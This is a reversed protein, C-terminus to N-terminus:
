AARSSTGIAAADTRRPDHGPDPRRRGLTTPQVRRLAQRLEDTLGSIREFDLDAPLRLREERRFAAIDACQRELYGRYRAEIELQEAVDPVCRRWSRGSRRWVRWAWARCPWCISATRACAMRAAGAVWQGRGRSADADARGPARRATALAAAKATFLSRASGASAASLWGAGPLGCTRTTPACALAPVRGPLHVDSLARHHGLTTLDDVLVGLYAESRDPVFDPTRGGAAMAANVGALLGQAAAEEYGTTGNIQGALFLGRLARLELTPDLERPDIHDYEIAYGPQLM